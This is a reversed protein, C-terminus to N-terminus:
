RVMQSLDDGARAAQGSPHVHSQMGPSDPRHHAAAIMLGMPSSGRPPTIPDSGEVRGWRRLSFRPGAADPASREAVRVPGARFAGAVGFAVEPVLVAVLALVLPAFVAVAFACAVLFGSAAAVVLVRAVLFGFAAAVVLARAVLFGSAVVPAAGVLGTALFGGALTRLRVGAGDGGGAAWSRGAASCCPVRSVTTWAAASSM